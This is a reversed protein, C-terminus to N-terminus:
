LLFFASFSQSLLDDKSYIHERWQERGDAKPEGAGERGPTMEGKEAPMSVQRGEKLYHM